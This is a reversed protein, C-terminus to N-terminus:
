TTWCPFASPNEVRITGMPRATAKAAACTATRKRAGPASGAMRGMTNTSEPMPMVNTVRSAGSRAVRCTIHSKMETAAM